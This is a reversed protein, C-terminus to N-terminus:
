HKSPGQRAQVTRLEGPPLHFTTNVPGYIDRAQFGANADGYAVTSAMSSHVTQITANTPTQLYTDAAACSHKLRTTRAVTQRSLAMLIPDHDDKTLKLELITKWINDLRPDNQLPGTQWISTSNLPEEAASSKFTDYPVEAMSNEFSEYTMSSETFSLSSYEVSLHDIGSPESPKQPKSGPGLFRKLSKDSKISIREDAEGSDTWPLSILSLSLMHKAIHENLLKALHSASDQKSLHQVKEPISECLPCVHQDRFVRQQKRSSLAALQVNTPPKSHRRPHSNPDEMHTRWEFESQFRMVLEHDVDCYWVINHVRRPWDKSHSVEMHSIWEKQHTFFILAKACEPFLCVYPQLDENM